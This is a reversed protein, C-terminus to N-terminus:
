VAIELEIRKKSPDFSVIRFSRIQGPKLLDSGGESKTGEGSKWRKNLMASLASVDVKAASSEVQAQKTAPKALICEANVGEGLEVKARDSRVEVVRGTVTEGVQHEAIFTDANTPELQKMGLRIRRRSKDLELVVAKVTQNQTLVDKPHEIRKERSLDGVHIMGEIGDGLDVFAGFKQISVVQGEVVTGEPYKKGVEDWPDGLAQKLGLAIRKDALNVGLVVVEVTEGVKVVESPKKIKRSWAMESLHILGDVGPDLEVFAGFDALRVVKGKIREGVKYKESAVTWPDPVLQKLGLGIKRTSPNIKLIKVDISEGATLVDAPNTVRHWSIDTVHLLGDVGGLDVFAGFETLSRVTGKVVDGEKLNAFAEDRLKSTEEEVVSRRDVVVDEEAIDLKTIRVRIEQGILKELDAMERVGSRSAPMFARAGVDVRLGGKVAETVTGAIIAKEAFAKELASWDKPRAVNMCSLEYYGEANRGTVSVTLSDGAKVEDVGSEKLKDLPLVGEMKRGIDIFVSEANVTVVTGKLGAATAAENEPATKHSHEFESLIDAFSSEEPTQVVEESDNTLSNSNM